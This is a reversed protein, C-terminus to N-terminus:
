EVEEDDRPERHPEFSAAMAHWLEDNDLSAGPEAKPEAKPEAALYAAIVEKLRRLRGITPFITLDGICLVPYGQPRSEDDQHRCTIETSEDPMWLTASLRNM